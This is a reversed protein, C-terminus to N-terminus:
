AVHRHARLGESELGFETLLLCKFEYQVNDATHKMIGFLVFAKELSLQGTVSLPECM